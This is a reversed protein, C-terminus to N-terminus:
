LTRSIARPPHVDGMLRSFAPTPAASRSGAQQRHSACGCRFAEGAQKPGSRWRDRRDWPWVTVMKRVGYFIFADTGQSDAAM